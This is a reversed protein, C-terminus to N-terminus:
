AEEHRSYRRRLTHFAACEDYAHLMKRIGHDQGWVFAVLPKDDSAAIQGLRDGLPTGDRLGDLLCFARQLRGDFRADFVTHLQEYGRTRALALMRDM